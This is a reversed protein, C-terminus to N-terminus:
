VHQGPLYQLRDRPEALNSMSAFSSSWRRSQLIGSIQFGLEQQYNQSVRLFPAKLAPSIIRGMRATFSSIRISPSSVHLGPCVTPTTARPPSQKSPTIENGGFGSFVVLSHALLITSEAYKGSSLATMSCSGSSSRSERESSLIVLRGVIAM